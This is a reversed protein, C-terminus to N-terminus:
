QEAAFAVAFDNNLEAGRAVAVPPDRFSALAAARQAGRLPAVARACIFSVKPSEKTEVVQCPLSSLASCACMLAPNAAFQFALRPANSAAALLSHPWQAHLKSRECCLARVEFGAAALAEAFRAHTNFPSHTLCRLPLMVFLLGGARLHARMGRLM